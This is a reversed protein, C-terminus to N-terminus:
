PPPLELEHGREFARANRPPLRAQREGHAAPVDRAGEGRGPRNRPVDGDRVVDIRGPGGGRSRCRGKPLDYHERDGTVYEVYTSTPPRIAEYTVPNGSGRAPRDPDSPNTNPGHHEVLVANRWVSPPKKALLPLLTHGDVTTPVSARAI